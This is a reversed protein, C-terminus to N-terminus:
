APPTEFRFMPVADELAAFGFKRYLAPSGNEGILGVWTIGDEELRALIMSVIRRAIGRLRHSEVVTIDHLYADGVGDSLARGFGIVEGGDRAVVYCHSGRIIRDIRQPDTISEPWWKQHHYISLIRSKEDPTPHHLFDVTIM